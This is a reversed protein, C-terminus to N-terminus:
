TLKAVLAKQAGVLAVTVRVAVLAVTARVQTVVATVTGAIRTTMQDYVKKTMCVIIAAKAITM